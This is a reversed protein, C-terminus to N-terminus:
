EQARIEEVIPAKMIHRISSLGALIGIGSTAALAILAMLLPAQMNAAFVMNFSKLLLYQLPLGIVAGWLTGIIGYLSCELLLMRHLQSQDMGIARTMAIERKRTQLNAHITNFLNICSILIVVIAFGGVFILMILYNNRQSVTNQYNDTLGLGAKLASVNLQRIQTDVQPEAGKAYRIELYINSDGTENELAAKKVADTNFRATGGEPFVLVGDTQQSFWPLESLLGAIKVNFTQKIEDSKEKTPSVTQIVPLTEGLRYDAFAANAFRGSSSFLASTQCLLAGGSKVLEDYDPAKGQFHLTSYNERSVELMLLQQTVAGPTTRDADIGRFEKYLKLYSAPVRNLPVRLDMAYVPTRQVAAVGSMGRVKQEIDSLKQVANDLGSSASFEYDMKGSQRLATQLSAGVSVAFGGVTIFLVVSAVVSLITTRFRKPSRRINKAALLGSFGFLRGLFRGKRNRRIRNERYVANGRVAEVMPVRMTARVPGFASLLVTLLSLAAALLYPWAVPALSLYRFDDPDLPRVVAIVVAIAGTGALLGVPAAVGWICLAESLVLSRIHGPSAGLCRLTGVESIKDAVSMAFSNRIVLMTIALIIVALIMFTTVIATKVKTAASKGMWEVIGNEHINEKAISCDAVAKRISSPFNLMPKIQAYVSYAHGGTPNLTVASEVNEYDYLGRRFFGVVTFTRSSKETFNGSDQSTITTEGASGGSSGSSGDSTLTGCPLTLSDGLKVGPFLAKATTSLMIEGSSKPARGQTTVDPMMSFATADYEFLRITESKGNRENVSLCTDSAALGAKQFLVNNKLREALSHDSINSVQYHWSGNEITDQTLRMHQFSAILMGTGSVLAVALAVGVATLITRQKQVRLYRTSLSFINM